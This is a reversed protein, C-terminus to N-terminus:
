TKRIRVLVSVTKLYEKTSKSVMNPDALARIAMLLHEMSPSVLPAAIMRPVAAIINVAPRTAGSSPWFPWGVTMLAQMLLVPEILIRVVLSVQLDL